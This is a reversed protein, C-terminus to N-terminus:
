AASSRAADLLQQLHERCTGCNTGAGTRDGVEDVSRAGDGIAVRVDDETVAECICVYM